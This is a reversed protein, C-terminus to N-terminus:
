RGVRTSFEMASTTSSTPLSAGASAMQFQVRVLQECMGVGEDRADAHCIGNVETYACAGATTPALLEDYHAAKASSTTWRQEFTSYSTPVRCRRRGTGRNGAQIKGIEGIPGSGCM